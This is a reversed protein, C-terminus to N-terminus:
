GADLRLARVIQRAVKPAALQERWLESIRAPDRGGTEWARCEQELACALGAANYDDATTGSDASVFWRMSGIHGPGVISCGCCLAEAAAINFSEWRSTVLMIQSTNYYAPLQDNPVSGLIRIRASVSPILRQIIGRLLQEGTGCIVVVYEPHSRLLIDLASMLLPANKVYSEWRGVAIIQKRKCEGAFRMIDAIPHGVIHIREALHVSATLKIAQTLCAAGLPSEVGIADAISLYAMLPHLYYSPFFHVSTKALAGLMAFPASRGSDRYGRYARRVYARTELRPTLGAEGCDLKLFIRIGAAHIAQLCPAYKPQAWSYSVVGNLGWQRWWVPDCAQGWTIRMIDAHEGPRSKGLLVVKSEIGIAQLGRTVLGTDRSFLLLDFDFPTFTFIRM